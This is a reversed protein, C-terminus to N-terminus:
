NQALRGRLNEDVLALVAAVVGEIGLGTSDVVDVGEAPKMFEAVTLDAQDRDHVQARVIELHEPSVDGYLELTRRKLRAEEDALLLVRVDADPCVVTTIDRGEAIMGSGLARAEMMRCRQETAMWSRVKLNTSIHRIQLAIRPQRIADTVEVDGVWLHPNEPHSDMRLDMHAAAQAVADTDSPDLGEELVYWTLARYMAGTDLYGIGLRSALIKSVTSKGSGAPGDIAITIGVREIASHRQATDVPDGNSLATISM